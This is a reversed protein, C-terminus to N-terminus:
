IERPFGIDIEYIMSPDPSKIWQLTVDLGHNALLDFAKITRSGYAITHGQADKITVTFTLDKNPDVSIERIYMSIHMVRYDDTFNVGFGTGGGIARWTLGDGDYSVLLGVQKGSSTAYYAIMRFPHDIGHGGHRYLLPHVVFVGLVLGVVFCLALYAALSDRGIEVM